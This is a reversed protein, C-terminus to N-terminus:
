FYLTYPLHQPKIKDKNQINNEKTKSYPLHYLTKFLLFNLGIPKFKIFNFWWWVQAAKCQFSVRIALTSWANSKIYKKNRSQLFLPSVLVFHSLRFHLYNALFYVLHSLVSIILIIM